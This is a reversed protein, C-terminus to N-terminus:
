KAAFFRWLITCPVNHAEGFYHRSFLSFHTGFNLAGFRPGGDSSLTASDRVM